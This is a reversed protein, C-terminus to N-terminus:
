RGDEGAEVGEDGRAISQMQAGGAELHLAERHYKRLSPRHGVSVYTLGPVQELLAYMAGETQLDLASTSEDLLLLAPRSTLVRAFGLRQQEGLSLIDAWDCVVDLPEVSSGTAAALAATREILAGLKAAHLVRTLAESDWEAAAEDATRPYLLQERLSGITCYPRQPLFLLGGQAGAGGRAGVGGQAGAGNHAGVVPAAADVVPAAGDAPAASADTARPALDALDTRFQLEGEHPSWLGSLVRLLSSKGVGSGGTILVHGTERVSFGLARCLVQGSLGPTRVALNRVRLLEGGELASAHARADAADRESIRAAHQAAKASLQAAPVPAAADVAGDVLATRNTPELASEWGLEDVLQGLRDIGASFASLSEFENM